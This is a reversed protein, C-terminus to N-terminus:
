VLNLGDTFVLYIRKVLVLFDFGVSRDVHAIAIVQRPMKWNTYIHETDLWICCACM